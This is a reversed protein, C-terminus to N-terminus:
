PCRDPWERRRTFRRRRVFFLNCLSPTSPGKDFPMSTGFRPQKLFCWWSLSGDEHVTVRDTQINRLANELNVADAHLCAAHELLPQRARPYDFIKGPKLRAQNPDFRAAAGM